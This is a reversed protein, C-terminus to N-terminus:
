KVDSVLAEWEASSAASVHLNVADFCVTPKVISLELVGSLVFTETTIPRSEDGSQLILPGHNHVAESEGSKQGGWTQTPSRFRGLSAFFGLARLSKLKRALLGLVGRPQAGRARNSTRGREARLEIGDYRSPLSAV